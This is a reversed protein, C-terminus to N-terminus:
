RVPKRRFWSAVTEAVDGCPWNKKALVTTRSTSRGAAVGAPAAVFGTLLGPELCTESRSQRRPWGSHGDLDGRRFPGSGVRVRDDAVGTPHALGIGLLRVTRRRSGPPSRTWDLDVQRRGRQLGDDTARGATAASRIGARPEESAARVSSRMGSRAEFAAPVHRPNRRASAHEFDDLRLANTTPGM